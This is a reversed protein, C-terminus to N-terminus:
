PLTTLNNEHYFKWLTERMPTSYEVMQQMMEMQRAPDLNGLLRNLYESKSPVTKIGLKAAMRVAWPHHPALATEYAHSCCKSLKWDPSRVMCTIMEKLFDLFWLLRLVTRATSTERSSHMKEVGRRVEDMIMSQLGVVSSDKFNTQVLQAKTSIDSFAMSLATGLFSFSNSFELMAESFHYFHIDNLNESAQRLHNLLNELSFVSVM